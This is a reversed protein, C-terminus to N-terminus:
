RDLDYPIETRVAAATTIIMTEHTFRTISSAYGPQWVAVAQITSAATPGRMSCSAM